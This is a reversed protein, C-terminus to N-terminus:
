DLSRSSALASSLSQRSRILYQRLRANKQNSENMTDFHETSSRLLKVAEVNRHIECLLEGLELQAVALSQLVLFVNPRRADVASLGSIADNLSALAADMENARRLVIGLQTEARCQITEYQPMNPTQRTLEIALEVARSFRQRALEIRVGPSDVDLQLNTAILEFKYDPANPHEAVLGELIRLSQATAEIAEARQQRRGLVPAISRYCRALLLRCTTSQPEAILLEDIITLAEHYESEAQTALRPPVLGSWSDILVTALQLRANRDFPREDALRRLTRKAIQFEQMAENLRGQMRIVSASSAHFSAILLENAFMQRRLTIEDDKYLKSSSPLAQCIGIARQYAAESETSVLPM